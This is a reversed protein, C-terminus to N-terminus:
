DESEEREIEIYEKIESLVFYRKLAHAIEVPTPVQGTTKAIFNEITDLAHLLEPDVPNKYPM